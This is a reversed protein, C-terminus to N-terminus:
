VYSYVYIAQKHSFLHIRASGLNKWLKVVMKCVVVKFYHLQIAWNQDNRNLLSFEQSVVFYVPAVDLFILFHLPLSKEFYIKEAIDVFYFINTVIENCLRQIPVNKGEFYFM